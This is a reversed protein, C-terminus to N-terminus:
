IIKCKGHKPKVLTVCTSQLMMINWPFQINVVNTEQNLYLEQSFCPPYPAECIRTKANDMMKRNGVKVKTGTVFLNRLMAVFKEFINREDSAKRHQIVIEQHVSQMDNQLM